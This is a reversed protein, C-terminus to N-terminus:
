PNKLEHAVDAAFKELEAIKQFLEKSMEEINESLQGIEDARKPFNQKLKNLNNHIKYQNTIASLKKIPNAISRAFFVSLLIVIFMTVLLNDFLNSSLNAIISEANSLQGTLVVVGYIDNNKLLPSIVKILINSNLSIM